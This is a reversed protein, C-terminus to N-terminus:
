LIGSDKGNQACFERYTQLHYKIEEIILKTNKAMRGFEEQEICFNLKRIILIATIALHDMTNIHSEMENEFPQLNLSSRFVLRRDNDIEANIYGLEESLAGLVLILDDNFEISVVLQSTLARYVFFDKEFLPYVQCILKEDNSNPSINCVDQPTLPYEIEIYPYVTNKPQERTKVTKNSDKKENGFLANFREKQLLKNV